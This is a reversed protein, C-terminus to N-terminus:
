TSIFHYIILFFIVLSDLLKSDSSRELTSWVEECGTKFDELTSKPYMKFILPEFASGVELLDSLKDYCLDGDATATHLAM